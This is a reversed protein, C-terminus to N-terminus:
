GGEPKSADIEVIYEPDDDEDDRLLASQLDEALRSTTQAPVTAVPVAEARSSSPRPPTKRAEGHGGERMSAALLAPIPSAVTLRRQRDRAPPPAAVPAPRRAPAPEPLTSEASVDGEVITSDDAADTPAM